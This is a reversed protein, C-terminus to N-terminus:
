CINTLIADSPPILGSTTRPAHVLKYPQYRKLLKDKVTETLPRQQRVTGSINNNKNWFFFVIEQMILCMFHSMESM